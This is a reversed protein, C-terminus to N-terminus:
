RVITVTGKYVVDNKGGEKIVLVYMYTGENLAEGAMDNGSWQDIYDVASYVLKGWRTYIHLTNQYNLTCNIVFNDNLGDGNPSIVLRGKFCEGKPSAGNCVTFNEKKTCGNADTVTISCLGTELSSAISTSENNCWQYTYPKIGGSVIAEYSGDKSLNDSTCKIRNFNLSLGVPESINVTATSTKQNADTITVTYNGACLNDAVNSTLTANHSWKYTIPLTAMTVTATIKGECDGKCSLGNGGNRFEVTLSVKPEGSIICTLITATYTATCNKSDTVKLIYKGAAVNSLNQSTSVISLGSRWEYTYGPSGGTVSVKNSGLNTNTCTSDTVIIVIKTPSTFNYTSACTTGDLDTVTVTYTGACLNKASITTDGTSWKYKYPILGGTVEARITGNCDGFCKFTDIVIVSCMLDMVICNIRFTKTTDCGKSDTVTVTYNGCKKGIIKSTTDIITINGKIWKYRYLPMGGTVILDISGNNGPLTEHTITANIIIPLADPVTVTVMRTVTNPTVGLDTIELKYTGACLGTADKTNIPPVLPTNNTSNLWRFTFNGSGKTITSMISGDCVGNCSIGNISFVATPLEIACNITINSNTTKVTIPDNCGTIDIPGNNSLNIFTLPVTMNCPGNLQFCLYMLVSGDALTVQPTTNKDWLIRISDNSVEINSPGFNPVSVNSVKSFAMKTKDFKLAFQFGEVCKFNNVYIPVCLESNLVGTTDRTYLSVTTQPGIVKFSGNEIKYPLIDGNGNGSVEIVTPPEDVINMATITNIAGVAIFCVEFLPENDPFTYALASSPNWSFALKTSDTSLNVDATGSFFPLSLKRTLVYSAISKDWRLSGQFTEIKKFNKALFRVCGTDGKPVEIKTLLFTFTSDGGGGGGQCNPGNVKVKGDVLTYPVKEDKDNIFEIDSPGKVIKILNSDCPNGILKFNIKFLLTN